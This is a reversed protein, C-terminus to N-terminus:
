RTMDFSRPSAILRSCEIVNMSVLAFAFMLMSAAKICKVSTMRFLTVISERQFPDEFSIRKFTTQVSIM